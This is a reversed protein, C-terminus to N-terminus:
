VARNWVASTVIQVLLARHCVELCCCRTDVACSFGEASGEVVCEVAAVGGRVGFVLGDDVFASRFDFGCAGALVSGLLLLLLLLLLWVHPVM